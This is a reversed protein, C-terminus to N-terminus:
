IEFRDYFLDILAEWADARPTPQGSQDFGRLMLADTIKDHVCMLEDDSYDIDDSLEVGISALMQLQEFNFVSKINKM